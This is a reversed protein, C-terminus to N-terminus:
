DHLHSVQSESSNGIKNNLRLGTKSEDNNTDQDDEDEDDFVLERVTTDPKPKKKRQREINTIAQYKAVEADIQLDLDTKGFQGRYSSRLRLPNEEKKLPSEDEEEDDEDNFDDDFPEQKM